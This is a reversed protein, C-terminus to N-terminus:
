NLPELVKKEIIAMKYGKLMGEKVAAGVYTVKSASYIAGSKILSGFKNVGELSSARM